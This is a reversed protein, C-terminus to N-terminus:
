IGFSVSQQRGTPKWIATLFAHCNVSPSCSMWGPVQPLMCYMLSGVLSCYPLTALQECETEDLQIMLVPKLLQTGRAIPTSATRADVQGYASIIKDILATQSLTIMKKARDRHLAISIVLKPEGLATIQWTTELEAWFCNAENRSSLTALMDDVHVAVISMDGTDLRCTYMCWECKSRLDSSCM